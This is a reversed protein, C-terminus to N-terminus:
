WRRFYHDLRWGSRASVLIGALLLGWELHDHLASTSAKLTDYYSLVAVGNLIFLGLASFRTFFGVFLMAGLMLECASASIAAVFPSLLPVRYENEFLYLTSSWDSVKSWGSLLFIRALYWRIAADVLPYLLTIIHEFRSNLETLSDRSFFTM